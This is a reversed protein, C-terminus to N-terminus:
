LSHSDASVNCDLNFQYVKLDIPVTYHVSIAVTDRSSTIVLDKDTAPIELEGIKKMIDARIDDDTKRNAVAFRAESTVADQLQFKAMLPPVVQIAGYVLCGLVAFVILASLKSGGHEPNRHTRARM